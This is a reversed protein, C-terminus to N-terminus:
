SLNGSMASKAAKIPHDDQKISKLIVDRSCITGFGISRVSSDSAAYQQVLLMIQMM